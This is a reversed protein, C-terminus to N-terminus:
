TKEVTVVRGKEVEAVRFGLHEGIPLSAYEGSVIKQLYELGTGSRELASVLRM